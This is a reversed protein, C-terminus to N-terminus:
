PIGLRAAGFHAPWEDGDALQLFAEESFDPLAADEDASAPVSGRASPPPERRAAAGTPGAGGVRRRTANRSRRAM